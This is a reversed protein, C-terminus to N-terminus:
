SLEQILKILPLFLAVVIFGVAGGLFIILIPEMLSTLSETLVAVEEDYTDAVKYLMTDLEGSEEGVDVMNVVLDDLIPKKAKTMYLLAGLGPVFITWFMGAVLNYGPVASDKMPQAIAEGDRIRDSVHSFMKEFMKNGTTEKTINLGELIPVGAGLLTGLTRCCRAVLNKEVLQGFVPMKLTFLDWGMAGYNNMRVIKIFWMFLFPVLPIFCWGPLPLVQRGPDDGSGGVYGTSLISSIDILVQTMPPLTTGFDDFITKFQPVITIMIFSLIGVAVSIVVIPYVLAGKVKRRLASAREMFESLRRLIVELAGGAEGARIMNCYLRDFCKPSKSMAESLTAGGEIEDCTDLLANKLGGPKQMEALVKLSRLIPLGADQLISLQRTFLTLEKQKVKGLAFTRGPKKGGAASASAKQAKIKTVMYGMSRITAQAENENTADVTDRIEKGTAADIAEFMFTPM